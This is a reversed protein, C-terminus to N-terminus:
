YVKLPEPDLVVAVKELLRMEPDDPREAIVTESVWAVGSGEVQAM